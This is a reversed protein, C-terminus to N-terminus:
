LCWSARRAHHQEYAPMHPQSIVAPSELLASPFPAAKTGCAACVCACEKKKRSQSSNRWSLALRPKCVDEGGEKKKKKKRRNQIHESMIESDSLQSIPNLM